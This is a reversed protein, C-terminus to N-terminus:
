SSSAPDPKVVKDIIDLNLCNTLVLEQAPMSVGYEDQYSGTGDYLWRIREGSKPGNTWNVKYLLSKQPSDSELSVATAAEDTEDNRFSIGLQSHCHVKKNFVVTHALENM